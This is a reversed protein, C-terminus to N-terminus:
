TITPNTSYTLIVEVVIQSSMSCITILKNSHVRFCEVVYYVGGRM